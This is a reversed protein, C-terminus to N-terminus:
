VRERCSARGIQTVAASLIVPWYERGSNGHMLQPRRRRLYDMLRFMTGLPNRSLGPLALTEIGLVHAKAYVVSGTPCAITVDHGGAHLGSALRAVYAEMGGWGATTITILINM